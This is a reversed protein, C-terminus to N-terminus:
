VVLFKSNKTTLLRGTWLEMPTKYNLTTSPSKDVLYCIINLIEAWLKNPLKICILMCRVKDMLTNNMKTSIHIYYDQAECHWKKACFDKFLKNCYELGNNTRLM